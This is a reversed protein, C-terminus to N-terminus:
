SLNQIIYQTLLQYIEKQEWNNLHKLHHNITNSDRRKAPGTQASKPSLSIVKQATNEILPTIFKWDIGKEKLLRYSIDFLANSFNNAFVAAIHLTNRQSEDIKDAIPSLKKAFHLLREITEEKNGDICLPVLIKSFDVNKSISQYPYLVGYNQAFGCFVSQSVAGGTHVALKMQFPIQQFIEPYCNDCLAFIYLDCNPSLDQLQTIAQANTQYALENAHLPNRSYVQSVTINAHKMQYALWSAVNGTGILAVSKIM